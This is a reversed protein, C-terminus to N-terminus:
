IIWDTALIDETTFSYVSCVGTISHRQVINGEQISYHYFTQSRGVETGEKAKMVTLASEFGYTAIDTAGNLLAEVETANETFVGVEILEKHRFLPVEESFYIFPLYESDEQSLGKEYYETFGEKIAQTQHKWDKCFMGNRNFFSQYERYLKAASKKMAQPKNRQLFDNYLTEKDKGLHLCVHHLRSEKSM